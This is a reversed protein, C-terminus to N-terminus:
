LKQPKGPVIHHNPCRPAYSEEAGILVVPENYNAPQNNVLRQTRTAEEGCIQGNESYTCIATVHILDDAKALFIPMSGFPEGRFDLPLGAVLVKKNRDLLEEVVAVIEPGFFQIEDIAVVETDSDVLSLIQRPEKIPIADRERGSHAHVKGTKNWRDDIEPKFIQFKRGAYEQREVLRVLEDTKGAFMCGSVVTLRETM